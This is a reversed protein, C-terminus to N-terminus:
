GTSETWSENEVDYLKAHTQRPARVPDGDMVCVDEKPELRIEDGPKIHETAILVRSTQRWHANFQRSCRVRVVRSWM